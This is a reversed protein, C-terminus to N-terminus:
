CRKRLVCLYCVCVGEKEGKNKRRFFNPPLAAEERTYIYIGKKLTSNNFPALVTTTCAKENLLGNM